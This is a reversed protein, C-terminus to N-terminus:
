IDEINNDDIRYDPSPAENFHLYIKYFALCAILVLIATIFRNDFM